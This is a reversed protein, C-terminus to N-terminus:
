THDEIFDVDDEDIDEACHECLTRGDKLHYFQIVDYLWYEKCEDCFIYEGDLCEECVHEVEDVITLECNKKGCMTCTGKYHKNDNSYFMKKSRNTM